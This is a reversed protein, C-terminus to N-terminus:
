KDSLSLRYVRKKAAGTLEVTQEVLTRGQIGETELKELTKMIFEDSIEEKPTNGGGEIVIVFEGRPEKFHSIAQAATGRFTEEYLKTLERCIVLQREPFTKQINALTAKIRHPSEYAIVPGPETAASELTAIQENKKRPLFGLFLFRDFSWGTISLATVIASPGPLPIVSHGAEVAAAVLSSGPDSIGPTGADSVVAMDGTELKHVLSELREPSTHEHLSELQPSVNLHNLLKRTVRTDEAALTPVSSLIEVARTTLDSLNGIPTAVVYLTSM